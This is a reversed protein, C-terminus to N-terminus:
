EKGYLEKMLDKAFREIDKISLDKKELLSEWRKNYEYATKRHKDKPLWAGYKPDHVIVGLDNMQDEFKVPITHHAEMGSPNVGTMRSLNVRFNGKTFKRFTVVNEVARTEAKGLNVATYLTEISHGLRPAKAVDGIYPVLAGAVSQLAGLYNGQSVLLTANAGDAIGTPDFYGAIDLAASLVKDGELTYNGGWNIGLGSVNFSLDLLDTKITVSSSERGTLVIDLGGDDTMRIPNGICYGYPSWQMYKEALPDPTLWRALAPDYMRAGYDLLSLAPNLAQQEEKGSYRWRNSPDTITSTAGQTGGTLAWRTGFPLYDSTELVEGTSGDTVARVSGLHDRIHHRVSYGSLTGDTDREAVIRGGTTLVCDLTLAGGPAKTYILEGKYVYGSGDPRETSYKTGDALWTYTALTSTVGGETVTAGSLLNLANWVLDQGTRGDHTTNGNADYAFASYTKGSGNSGSNSISWIRNGSLTFLLDDEPDAAGQGYRVLAKINGNRDYELGQETFADTAATSSGIYRKSGTLRNLGDYSFAYTQMESGSGRSWSWESISGGYRGATSTRSPDTYRLTSSYVPSAQGTLWGRANYSLTEATSGASGPEGYTRGTMRGVDDYSYTVRDTADAGGGSVTTVEGALRDWGDYSMERTVVTAAGGSPTVVKRSAVTKGTFSLNLFLDERTGRHDICHKQVPQSRWDYYVAEASFSSGDGVVFTRSGTQLGKAGPSSNSPWATGYGSLTSVALGSATASPLLSLFSYSDHYRVSLLTRDQPLTVGSVTYGGLASGSSSTTFTVTPVSTAASAVATETLAATGRVCERGLFDPLTFTWLGDTRQVADQSFVQRDSRDYRLYVAGAGPLKSFTRRGRSDYKYIYALGQLVADSDSWTGDSSLSSSAEPSLVYRLLGLNDYVYYTDAYSSGAIVRRHLVERGWKDTFVLSVNGDEDDTRVVSLEGAGYVGRKRLSSASAVEYCNCTCLGGGSTTGVLYSVEEKRGRTRWPSGPGNNATVRGRPTPEYEPYSDAYVDSYTLFVRGKAADPTVYAGGNDSDLALPLYSSSARGFGDYEQLTVVSPFGSASTRSVEEAIRALGDIYSTKEICTGSTGGSTLMTRTRVSNWGTGSSSEPVPLTQDLSYEHNELLRLATGDHAYAATLRGLGDYEWSFSRGSPDTATSLGVLPQWTWTEVHVSTNDSWANRLSSLQAAVQSQTGTNLRSTDVRSLVANLSAGRIRAVPYQGRYGWLWVETRGDLGTREMVNGRRDYTGYSLTRSGSSPASGDSPAADVTLSEGEKVYLTRSPSAPGASVAKYTTTRTSLRNAATTSNVYEEVKVPIAVLNAAKMADNVTSSIDWAYSYKTIRKPSSAGSRASGTVTHESINNRSDYTFTEGTTLTGNSEIVSETRSVLLKRGATLLSWVHSIAKYQDGVHMEDTGYVRHGRYVQGTKVTGQSLELTYGQSLEGATKYTSGDSRITLSSTEEGRTWGDRSDTVLTTGANIIPRSTSVNFRHLTAGAISGCTADPSVTELVYPYVVPSGHDSFLSVMSNDSWVREKYDATLTAPPQFEHCSTERYILDTPTAEATGSYPSVSLIGTGTASAPANFSETGYFFHRWVTRGSAATEKVSRIRLGGAPRSSGAVAYRHAEYTFEARGGTPYTVSTLIGGQMYEEDPERNGGPVTVTDTFSIQPFRNVLVGATVTPVLTSNGAHNYYGWRDIDRTQRPPAQGNYSFSWSEPTASGSSVTLGELRLEGDEPDASQNFTIERILTGDSSKISIKALRYGGTVPTSARTFTVTGGPYTIKAPYTTQHSESQSSVSPFTYGQPLLVTLPDVPTIHGATSDSYVYTLPSASSGGVSPRILPSTYCVQGTVGDIMTLADSFNYFTTETYPSTYEFAVTGGTTASTVTRIKWSTAVDLVSAGFRAGTRDLYSNDDPSGFRYRVGRPDTIDVQRDFDGNGSPLTVALPETPITVPTITVSSNGAPTRTFYLRGSHGPLSYYFEDLAIDNTQDAISALQERTLSSASALTANYVYEDPGGHIVRTLTPGASLSWGQPLWSRSIIGPKLGSAHYSLTIPIRIDGSVIEYLPIEINLLGNSLDVPYAIGKAIEMASPAPPVLDELSLDTVPNVAATRSSAALGDANRQPPATRITDPLTTDLFIPHSRTKLSAPSGSLLLLLVPLLFLIAPKKKM